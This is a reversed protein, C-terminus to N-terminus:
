SPPCNQRILEDMEITIVTPANVLRDCTRNIIDVRVTSSEEEKSLELKLNAECFVEELHKNEEVTARTFVGVSCTSSTACKLAEFFQWAIAEKTFKKQKYTMRVYNGRDAHLITDLSDIILVSNQAHERRPFDELFAILKELKFIPFVTLHSLIRSCQFVEAFKERWCFSLDTDIFFVRTGALASQFALSCALHSKGSDSPGCVDVTRIWPILELLENLRPSGCRLAVTGPGKSTVNYLFVGEGVLKRFLEERLKILNEFSVNKKVALEHLEPYNLRFIDYVNPTRHRRSDPDDELLLGEAQFTACLQRSLMYSAM